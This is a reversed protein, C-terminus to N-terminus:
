EISVNRHNEQCCILLPKGLKKQRHQERNGQWVKLEHNEWGNILWPRGQKVELSMKALGAPVPESYLGKFVCYLSQPLSSIQM